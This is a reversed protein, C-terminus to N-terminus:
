EVVEYGDVIGFSAMVADVIAKNDKYTSSFSQYEPDFEAPRFEMENDGPFRIRWKVMRGFVYDADLTRPHRTDPLGPYDGAMAVNEWVQDETVSSRARLAGMGIVESAEYVLYFARRLFQEATILKTTLTIKM